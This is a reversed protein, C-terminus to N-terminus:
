RSFSFGVIIKTYSIGISLRARRQSLGPLLVEVPLDESTQQEDSSNQPQTAALSRLLALSRLCDGLATHSPADIVLGMDACANGLKQWKYDWTRSRRDWRQEGYYAAYQQM